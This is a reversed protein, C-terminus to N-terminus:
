HAGMWASRPALPLAGRERAWQDLNGILLPQTNASRPPRSIHSLAMAIVRSRRARSCCLRKCQRKHQASRFDKVPWRGGCSCQKVLSAVSNAQRDRPKSSSWFVAAAVFQCNWSSRILHHRSCKPFHYLFYTRAMLM